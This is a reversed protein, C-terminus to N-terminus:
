LYEESIRPNVKYVTTKRGASDSSHESLWGHEVLANVALHVKDKNSLNAWGKHLLSRQTFGNTIKKAILKKALSRTPASDLGHVSGYVRKAHSKLYKAFRLATRLSGESVAGANGDILHFLLALGPVLSRYKAFHGQESPDLSGTRLMNENDQYWSNFLAQARTDFHLLQVGAHNRIAGQIPKIQLNKLSIIAQHMQALAQKNAPRDILDFQDPLDPWVLLQFRQLLGDNKSSGSQAFRVYAKIRDPQFGGFVALQYRTLTVSERTIRDFTYSGQGGWGSLYFGRAAEQGATDLSQLLGSLEDALALIGSPNHALIEGLAQYTVDNVIYRAKVPKIPEVPFINSKGSKFNAMSKDFQAKDQQHKICDQKYQTAAVEELHHLPKLSHILAPTKMSGPSGVIGGWFGAHVVWSEDYEKPLIGVTNGLATGAGVIAPIAVYDLPCSLREAIDICGDRLAEPLWDPNLNHVPHLEGPLKQPELWGNLDSAPLTTIDLEFRKAPNVWGQRQAEAFVYRYSISTPQLSDWTTSANLPDYKESTMSWEMWLGRGIDGLSKLALGAKIWDERIDSRLHLLASRLSQIDTPSLTDTAPSSTTLNIGVTSVDISPKTGSLLGKWVGLLCEPIKPIYRWDGKGAWKYESGTEPHISPPILDQVTKGNSSACRFELVMVKTDPDTIQCTEMRETDLPLRYLLKGRNIRGSDIQVADPADLLTQLDVGHKALYASALSFDDIDLAATASPSCYLHAIGVNGHIMTARRPDTIVNEPNNWGKIKPGKEGKPIPVLAYGHEAYNALLNM